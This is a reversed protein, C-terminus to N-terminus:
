LPFWLGRDYCVLGERQLRTLYVSIATPGIEVGRKDLKHAIWQRMSGSKPRSRVADLVWDKQTIPLGKLIDPLKVQKGNKPANITHEAGAIEGLEGNIAALKEYLRARRHRRKTLGDTLSASARPRGSRL